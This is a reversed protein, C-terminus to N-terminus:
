GAQSESPELDGGRENGNGADGSATDDSARVESVESGAIRFFIEAMQAGKRLLSVDDADLTKFRDFDIPGEISLSGDESSIKSIMRGILFCVRSLGDLDLADAQVEDFGNTMRNLEVIPYNVGDINFGFVLVVTNNAKFEGTKEGRTDRCFDEYGEALIGRDIRNLKLLVDLAPPMRLGGFGTMAKRRILEVYQTRSQAQRDNDILFLDEGTLRKGFIVEKHVNGKEDTHGFQLTIKHEMNKVFLVM